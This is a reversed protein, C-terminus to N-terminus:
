APFPSLLLDELGLGRLYLRLARAGVQELDFQGADFLWNSILGDFLMFLAQAAERAPVALTRQSAQAAAQLVQEAQAQALQMCERRRALVPDMEALYEVRHTAIAFVRQTRPDHVTAHLAALLADFLAQLQRQPSSHAADLAGFAQELPLTAREMMANFLDAKNEFHWYIAGRTLGAASAIDHLSTRAVGRALFLVEAADLLCQRTREAEAKTKRPM